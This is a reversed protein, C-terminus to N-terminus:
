LETNCWLFFSTDYRWPYNKTWRILKISTLNLLHQQLNGIEARICYHPWDALIFWILCAYHDQSFQYNHCFFSILKFMIERPM